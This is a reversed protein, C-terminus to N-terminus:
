HATPTSLTSIRGNMYDIFGSSCASKQGVTCVWGRADEHSITGSADDPGNVLLVDHQREPHIDYKQLLEGQLASLKEVNPNILKGDLGCLSADLKFNLKAIQRNFVEKPVADLAKRLFARLEEPSHAPYDAMPGVYGIWFRGDSFSKADQSWDEDLIKRNTPDVLFWKDAPSQRAAVVVHGSFATELARFSIEPGDVILTEWGPVKAMYEIFALAYDGCGCTLGSDIIEKGTRRRLFDDNYGQIPQGKGPLDYRERQNMPKLTSAIHGIVHELVDKPTQARHSTKDKKDPSSFYVGGFSPGGSAPYLTVHPSGSYEMGCRLEFKGTGKSILSQQEPFARSSGGTVFLNLAARDHSQLTYSGRVVIIDGKEMRPSTAEVSEITVSDGNSLTNDYTVFPVAKVAASKLAASSFANTNPTATAKTPSAVAISTPSGRWLVSIVKGSVEDLPVTMPAANNRTLTLQDAAVSTVRGVFYVKEHRYVVIDGASWNRSLKWVLVKSGGPIEPALSQTPVDFAQIVWARLPVVLAIILAAIGVVRSKWPLAPTPPGGKFFRHAREWLTALPILLLLPFCWRMFGLGPIFGLFCLLGWIACGAMTQGVPTILGFLAAIRQKVSGSGTPSLAENHAMALVQTRLEAATQWRMEPKENLARLVIEDLKVDIQVHRSVAQVKQQPLEGTLLEYLVVGLSYIDARHDTKPDNRTQEPAMYQPTGAPQSLEETAPSNLMKAIGFDAIKLRGEKDLLLNEPKIDRHVIGHEHAYQLAECVPPVVALAQEPTFRGAKMAQRLNVGDVFEMLLYYFGGAQGFDHVIVINPHNLAALAQAEKAFRDAFQVERVREPALVKLAVLRHLAKQRAKYVVGMGGRGIVDLVELEPFAAQVQAEDPLETGIAGGDETPLAVRALLCKPCLGSANLASGCQACSPSTSTANM